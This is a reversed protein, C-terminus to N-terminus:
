SVAPLAVKEGGIGLYYGDTEEPVAGYFYTVRVGETDAPDEWTRVSGGFSDSIEEPIETGWLFGFFYLDGSSKERYLLIM